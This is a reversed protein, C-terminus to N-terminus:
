VSHSSNLSHEESRENLVNYPNGRGLQKLLKDSIEFSRNYEQVPYLYLFVKKM